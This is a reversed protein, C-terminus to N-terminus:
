PKVGRHDTYKARGSNIAIVVALDELARSAEKLQKELDYIKTRAANIAGVEDPRLVVNAHFNTGRVDLRHTVGGFEDCEVTLDISSVQEKM